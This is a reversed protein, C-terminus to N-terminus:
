SVHFHRSCKSLPRHQVRNCYDDVRTITYSYNWYPKSGHWLYWITTHGNFLFDGQFWSVSCRIKTRSIRQRCKISSGGLYFQGNFGRQLAVTSYHRADPATLKPLQPKHPSPTTSTTPPAPTPTTSPTPTPTPTPTPPAPWGPNDVVEYQLCYIKGSTSDTYLAHHGDLCITNFDSTGSYIRFTGSSTTYGGQSIVGTSDTVMYLFPGNIATKTVSGFGITWNGYGISFDPSGTTAQTASTDCYEPLLPDPHGTITETISGAPDAYTVALSAPCQGPNLGSYPGLPIVVFTGQLDLQGASINSDTVTPPQHASDWPGTFDASAAPALALTMLSTIILVLRRM